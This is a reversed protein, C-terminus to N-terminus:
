DPFSDGKRGTLKEFEWYHSSWNSEEDGPTFAWVQVMKEGDKLPYNFRKMAKEQWLNWPNGEDKKYCSPSNPIIFIGGKIERERKFLVDLIKRFM